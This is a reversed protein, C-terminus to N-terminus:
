SQTTLNTLETLKKFLESNPTFNYGSEIAKLATRVEDLLHSVYKQMAVCKAMNSEFLEARERFKTPDEIGEMANVCNAIREADIELTCVAVKNVQGYEAFITKGSVKWPTDTHKKSM